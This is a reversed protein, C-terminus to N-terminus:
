IWGELEGGGDGRLEEVRRELGKICNRMEEREKKWKAEQEKWKRRLEEIKERWSGRSGTERSMQRLKEKWDKVGRLKRM